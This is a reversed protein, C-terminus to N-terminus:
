ASAEIITIEPTQRPPKKLDILPVTIKNYNNSIDSSILKKSQKKSGLILELNQKEGDLQIEELCGPHPLVQRRQKILSPLSEVVQQQDQVSIELVSQADKRTLEGCLAPIRLAIRYADKIEGTGHQKAVGLLSEINDSSVPMGAKDLSLHVAVSLQKEIWHIFGLRVASQPPLVEILSQCEQYTEQSLGKTKLIKQCALLAQADRLFRNIFAKCQPLRGLRARLKSLVSGASARGAPSHHLLQDAWKVLRHLNMFRTKTSVKPPVLCALLTQKFKKSIENCASIFTEFLPHDQYEHKLLNAITHSLDDISFSFHGREGLVRIAKALDKGGDKLYALPRGLTAIVKQLFDAITEGTWSDAVAVAVCNVHELTPAGEHWRHHQADLFLVTLIKGTGLGISIDIICIFGNSFPDQITPWNVLQGAKQIRAISLRTIWNILTQTSPIKSLGLYGSLVQLVRSVARFSIRAILFLQLAIYVLEEKDHVPSINKCSEKKIQQKAKNLEKKYHDREKKIRSNEKRLYRETNAREVAKEKWKNRSQQLKSKISMM